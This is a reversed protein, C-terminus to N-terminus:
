NKYSHHQATGLLGQGDLGLCCAPLLGWWGVGSAHVAPVASAWLGARGAQPGHSSHTSYVEWGSLNWGVQRNEPTWSLVWNAQRRQVHQAEQVGNPFSSWGATKLAFSFKLVISSFLPKSPGCHWPLFSAWWSCPLFICLCKNARSLVVCQSLYPRKRCRQQEMGSCVATQEGHKLAFQHIVFSNQAPNYM